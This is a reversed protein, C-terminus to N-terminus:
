GGKGIATVRKNWKKEKNEMRKQNLINKNKNEGSGLNQEEQTRFVMDEM